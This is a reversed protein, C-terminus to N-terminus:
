KSDATIPVINIATLPVANGLDDVLKTSQVATGFTRDYIDKIVNSEPDKVTIYYYTANPDKPSSPEDLDAERLKGELWQRIESESEVLQPKKPKYSKGGKPGIILEKEIKYLFSREQTLHLQSDLLRNAQTMARQRYAELVKIRELTKPAKKGRPRGAGPRKGGNAM